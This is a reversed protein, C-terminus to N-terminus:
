QLELYEPCEPPPASWAFAGTAANRVLERKFTCRRDVARYLDTKRLQGERMSDDFRQRRGPFSDARAKYILRVDGAASPVVTLSARYRYEDHCANRRQHKDALTFCARILFSSELPVDLAARPKTNAGARVEFLKLTTV